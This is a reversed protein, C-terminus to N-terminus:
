STTYEVYVQLRNRCVRIGSVESSPLGKWDETNNLAAVIAALDVPDLRRKAQLQNHTRQNNIKM